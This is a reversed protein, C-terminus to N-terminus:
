VNRLYRKDKVDTCVIAYMKMENVSGGSKLSILIILIIFLAEEGSNRTLDTACRDKESGLM